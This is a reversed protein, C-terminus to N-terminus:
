EPESSSSLAGARDTYAAHNPDSPTSSRDRVAHCVRIRWSRFLTENGRAQAAQHPAHTRWAAVADEDRWWSLSLLSDPHSLSQYREISIFGDITRLDAALAAAIKLYEDRHAAHPEVEFIVAIM